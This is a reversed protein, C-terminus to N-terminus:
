QHTSMSHDHADLGGESLHEVPSEAFRQDSVRASIRLLADTM